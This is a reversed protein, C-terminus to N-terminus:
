TYTYRPEERGLSDLSQSCAGTCVLSAFRLWEHVTEMAERYTLRPKYGLLTSLKKTSHYVSRLQETMHRNGLDLGERDKPIVTPRALWGRVRDQFELSCQIFKNYIWENISRFIPVNSLGKRFEGSLLARFNDTFRSKATPRNLLKEVDARPVSPLPADIGLISQMDAYFEKWTTPEPDNVFYREGWGQQSRAAAIIGEVVNEVHVNNTPTQGGDVLVLARNRLYQVVRLIFPAYPGYINAPCLLIVPVGRRHMKLLLEDQRLKALGYDDDPTPKAAESATEPGPVKGYIAISSLHIVKKVRARTAAKVLNKAMTVMQLPLGRTLDVVIEFGQLAATLSTPSMVDLPALKLPFRALRSTNGFSHVYPTFDFEQSYYLRECLTSGVFGSAGLIAM